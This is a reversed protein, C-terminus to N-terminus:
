FPPEDDFGAEGRAVLQAYLAADAARQEPSPSCAPCNTLCHPTGDPVWGSWGKAPTLIYRTEGCTYCDPESPDFDTPNGDEDIYGMALDDKYEQWYDREDDIVM